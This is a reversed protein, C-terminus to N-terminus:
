RLKLLLHLMLRNLHDVSADAVRLTFTRGVRSLVIRLKLDVHIIRLRLGIVLAPGCSVCNLAVGGDHGVGLDVQEARSRIGFSLGKRPMCTLRDRLWKGRGVVLDIMLHASGTRRVGLFRFSAALACAYRVWRATKVFVRQEIRFRVM